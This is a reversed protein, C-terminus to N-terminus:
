LLKSKPYKFFTTRVEEIIEEQTQGPTYKMAPLIDDSMPDSIMYRRYDWPWEVEADDPVPEFNERAWASYELELDDFIRVYNKAVYCEYICDPACNLPLCSDICRMKTIKEPHEMGFRWTFLEESDLELPIFLRGYKDFYEMNSEYYDEIM